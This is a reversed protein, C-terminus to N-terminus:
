SGLSECNRSDLELMKDVLKMERRWKGEKRLRITDQGDAEKDDEDGRDDPLEILCWKRHNWIWYVKPHARLAHATLALDDELLQFKVQEQYQTARKQDDLTNSSSSSREGANSSSPEPGSRLSAFFDPKAEKSTSAASPPQAVLSLIVDRRYNWVTYLEPNLTLLNTTANLAAEDLQNRDRIDFFLEEAEKYVKLKAAEKEKRAARASVSPPATRKVGHM